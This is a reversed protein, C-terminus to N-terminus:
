RQKIKLLGLAILGGLIATYLQPWRMMDIITLPINVIQAKGAILVNIPKFVFYTVTLYILLFKAIAATFIGAVQYKKNLLNYVSVYVANGLTIFPLMLLLPLPLFGSSAAIIPTIMGLIIAQNLGYNILTYILVANVISGTVLQPLKSIIVGFTFLFILLLQLAKLIISTNDLALIKTKM